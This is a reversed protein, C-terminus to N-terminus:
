AKEKAKIADRLDLVRSHHPDMRQARTFCAKCRAMLGQNLYLQTLDIQMEIDRPDLQIAELFKREAMHKARSDKLQMYVKGMLHRASALTPDYLIALKLCSRFLM